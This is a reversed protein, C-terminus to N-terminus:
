CLKQLAISQGPTTGNKIPVSSVHSELGDSIIKPFVLHMGTSITIIVLLQKVFRPDFALIDFARLFVDVKKNRGLETRSRAALSRKNGIFLSASVNFFFISNYDPWEDSDPRQDPM